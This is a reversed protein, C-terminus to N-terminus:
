DIAAAPRVLERSTKGARAVFLDGAGAATDQRRHLRGAAGALLFQDVTARGRSSASIASPTVLM